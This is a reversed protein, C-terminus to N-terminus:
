NDIAALRKLNQVFATEVVNQHRYEFLVVIIPQHTSMNTALFASILTQFHFKDSLQNSCKDITFLIGTRSISVAWHGM